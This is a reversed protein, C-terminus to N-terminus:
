NIMEFNERPAHGRVALIMTASIMIKKHFYGNRHLIGEFYLDFRKLQLMNKFNEGPDLYGM